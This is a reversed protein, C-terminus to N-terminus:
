WGYNPKTAFHHRSTIERITGTQSRMVISHTTAGYPTYRVGRLYSGNTVGTAIFMVNGKALDDIGYVRNEDTIGMAKARVREEDKRFQLVGQIEGGLCRLAAAAIVGEPAGGVGMLVDVGTSAEATAIAASVDGDGILRICAGAQRVEGILEQHRPRDLIIVTLDEVKKGMAKAIRQLNWTPTENIDIVGRAMPGVALKKMYTDPAHLFNGHEAAAIVALAESGGKATISTGELPDCAIDIKPGGKGVKEGIYLMPAEDREGEGIVITADIQMSDFARRMSEVAAHDAANEDGRGVWRAASLAAAETVRVFELALNRDM